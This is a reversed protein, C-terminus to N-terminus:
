NLRFSVDLYTCFEISGEYDAVSIDAHSNKGSTIMTKKLFRITHISSMARDEHSLRGPLPITHM